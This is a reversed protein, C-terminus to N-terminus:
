KPRFTDFFRVNRGFDIETDPRFTGWFIYINERLLAFLDDLTVGTHQYHLLFWIEFCPNLELVTVGRKELRKKETSYKQENREAIIADMDILCYIKEYGEGLYVEAKKFVGVYGSGSPLDPKIKVNRLKEESKLFDFYIKETYGDGIIIVDKSGTKRKSIRM